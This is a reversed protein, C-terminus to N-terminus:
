KKATKKRFESFVKAVKTRESESLKMTKRPTKLSKALSNIEADSLTIPKFDKSPIVIHPKIRSLMLHLDSSNMNFTNNKIRSGYIKQYRNIYFTEKNKVVSIYISKFYNTLASKKSSALSIGAKQWMNTKNDRVLIEYTQM